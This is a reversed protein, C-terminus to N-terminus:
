TLLLLAFLVLWVVLLFHWYRACLQLSLELRAPAAGRRHAAITRGWAILGGLLHAGHVATVLYFFSNAPNGAVFYGLARLQQWAWLQGLLFALAFGGAALLAIGIARRRRRRGAILAYQLAASGLVLWLTNLWLLRPKPLPQWDGFHMRMLYASIFLLFLSTLVALLIWLGQRATADASSGGRWSGGGGPEISGLRAM